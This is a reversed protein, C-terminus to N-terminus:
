LNYTQKMSEIHINLHKVRGRGGGGGGGGGGARARARARARAKVDHWVSLGHDYYVKVINFLENAIDNTDDNCM